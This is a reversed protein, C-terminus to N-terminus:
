ASTESATLATSATQDDYSNSSSNDHVGYSYNSNAIGNNNSSADQRGMPEQVRAKAAA